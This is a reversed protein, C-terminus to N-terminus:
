QWGLSFAQPNLAPDAETSLANEAVTLILRWEKTFSPPREVSLAIAEGDVYVVPEMPWPLYNRASTVLRDDRWELWADPVLELRILRGALDTSDNELRVAGKYRYTDSPGLDGTDWPALDLCMDYTHSSPVDSPPIGVIAGGPSFQHGPGIRTSGENVFAVETLILGDADSPLIRVSGFGAPSSEAVCVHGVGDVMRGYLVAPLSPDCARPSGDSTSDDSGTEFHQCVKFDFVANSTSPCREETQTDGGPSVVTLRVCGDPGEDLSFAYGDVDLFLDHEVLSRTTVTAPSTSSTESATPLASQCAGAVLVLAAGALIRAKM